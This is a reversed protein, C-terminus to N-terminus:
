DFWWREHHGGRISRFNKSQDPIKEPGWATVSPRKNGAIDALKVM